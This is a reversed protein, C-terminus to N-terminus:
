SDSAPPGERNRVPEPRVPERRERFSLWAFVLINMIRDLVQNVLLLGALGAPSLDAHRAFELSTGIFVLDKNPLLPLRSLILQIAILTFWIDLPVWPMVIRWQAIQFVVLIIMRGSHLSFILASDRRDMSFLYSRYKRFLYAAIVAFIAFVVALVRLDYDVWNYIELRGTGAFGALLLLAIATSALTSLINNDRVVEYAEKKEIGAHKQLWFFLQVEGSYGLVVKNYVRKKLFIAQSQFFRLPWRIGYALYETVPLAFYILLFLLYFLPHTPLESLINRWGIQIIQYILIGIIGTQFAYKALRLVWQGTSTHGFSSLTDFIRQFRHIM